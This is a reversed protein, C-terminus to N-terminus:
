PKKFEDAKSCTVWHPIFGKKVEGSETIITVEAPNVPMNKGAKTKIWEIYQGCGRCTSGKRIETM